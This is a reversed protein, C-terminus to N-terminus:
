LCGTNEYNEEKEIREVAERAEKRALADQLPSPKKDGCMIGIREQVRYLFEALHEPNM